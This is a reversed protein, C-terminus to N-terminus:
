TRGGALLEEYLAETETVMRELSFERAVRARGAEGMKETRDPDLLLMRIAAALAGPEEPAVLFGTVDDEVAEVLGGVRTAIVPRGAAMAELAAYGLGEHRSPVVVCTAQLYFPTPDACMGVWRTQKALGLDEALRVVNAAEAGDGVFLLEIRDLLDPPLMAAARILLDQGKVRELRGVCTIVAKDTRPRALPGLRLAIGNRIIRIRAAPVGYACRAYAAVSESVAIVQDALWWTMRNIIREGIREMELTHESTVLRFPAIGFARRLFRVTRLVLNAPFLHSHVLDPRVKRILNGVRMLGPLDWYGRVKAVRVEVGLRAAEAAWEGAAKLCLLSCCFRTRDLRKLLHLLVREAGGTELSPIVHLVHWPSPKM